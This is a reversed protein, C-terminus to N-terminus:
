KSTLNFRADQGEHADPHVEFGIETAKNYKEPIEKNPHTVEIRYLGVQMMPLRQLEEPIAEKPITMHAVGEKNTIGGARETTEEGLYPEPVYWVTAGVLPRKDFFIKCTANTLGVSEYMRELRFVMEDRDIKKDGTTDYEALAALLPPSGALEEENLMGDGDKDMQAIAADTAAEPDVPPPGVHTKCGPLSLLATAALMAAAVAGRHPPTEQTM